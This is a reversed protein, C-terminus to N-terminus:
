PLKQQTTADTPQPRNNQQFADSDSSM